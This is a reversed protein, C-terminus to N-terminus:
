GGADVERERQDLVVEDGGDGAPERLLEDDMLAPRAALRLEGREEIDTARDSAEGCM